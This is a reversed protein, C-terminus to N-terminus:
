YFLGILRDLMMGMLLLPLYLISARMISKATDAGRRTKFQYCKWSQWGGGLISILGYVWGFVGLYIPILAVGILAISFWVMQQYTADGHEDHGSLMKIGARAYDEKLIWAISFFHPLQWIVLIWFLSWSIPSIYGIVAVSGALPPIAGPITGVYTNLWTWQKLPTYVLNYLFVTILSLFMVTPNTTQWLILLGLGVLTFGLSGALEAPIRGAPLPRNQTRHMKADIYREFFHNFVSAGASSALTGVGLGVMTGWRIPALESVALVGMYLTVLQMMVIRPKTLEILDLLFRKM